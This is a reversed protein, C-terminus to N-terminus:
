YDYGGKGSRGQKVSSRKMEDAKRRANAAKVLGEVKKKQAESPGKKIPISAASLVLPHLQSYMGHFLATRIDITLMGKAFM